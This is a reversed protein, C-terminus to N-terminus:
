KLTDSALVIEFLLIPHVLLEHERQLKNIYTSPNKKPPNTHFKNDVSTLLDQQIKFCKESQYLFRSSSMLIQFWIKLHWTTLNYNICVHIRKCECLSIFHEMKRSNTISHYIIFFVCNWQHIHKYTNKFLIEAIKYTMLWKSVFTNKYKFLVQIFITKWKVM